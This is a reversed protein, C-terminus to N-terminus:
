AFSARRTLRPLVKHGEDVGNSTNVFLLEGACTVSCSCMNHQSVKLAGMMDFSWVVDAEDKEQVKEKDFPGDNEGDYFGETDLCVVEGRSSVFVLSRWRGISGLLDRSAALRERPWDATKRKFAAM